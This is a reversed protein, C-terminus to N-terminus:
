RMKECGKHLRPMVCTVCTVRPLNLALSQSRDSCVPSYQTLSGHLRRWRTCCPHICEAVTWHNRQWLVEHLGASRDPMSFSGSIFRCIVQLRIWRLEPRGSVGTTGSVSLRAPARVVGQAAGSQQTSHWPQLLRGSFFRSFLDLHIVTNAAEGISHFVQLDHTTHMSGCVAHFEHSRMLMSLYWPIVTDRLEGRWSM